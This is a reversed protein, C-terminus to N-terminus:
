QGTIFEAQNCQDAHDQEDPDHFLIRNHHDVKRQFGFVFLM